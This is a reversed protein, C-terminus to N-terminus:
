QLCRFDYTWVLWGDMLQKQLIKKPRNTIIDGETDLYIQKDLAVTMRWRTM